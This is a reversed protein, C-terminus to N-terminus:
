CGQRKNTNIDGYQIEEEVTYQCHINGVASLSNDMKSNIFFLIIGITIIILGIAIGVGTKKRKRAAIYSSVEAMHLVFEKSCAGTINKNKLEELYDKNWPKPKKTFVIEPFISSGHKAILKDIEKSVEEVSIHKELIQNILSNIEVFYDNQM